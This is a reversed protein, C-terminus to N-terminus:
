EEIVFRFTQCLRPRMLWLVGYYPLLVSLGALAATTENHFLSAAVVMGVVLLMLPIGFGLWVAKMGLATSVLISVTDGVVHERSSSLSVASVMKVKKESSNCVAHAKCDACTSAEEIRVSVSDGNVATVVGKYRTKDSM